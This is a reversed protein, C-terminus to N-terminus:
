ASSPMRSRTRDRPSPSTYLLCDYFIVKRSSRYRLVGVRGYIRRLGVVESERCRLTISIYEQAPGAGVAVLRFLFNRYTFARVAVSLIRGVPLSLFLRQFEIRVAALPFVSLCLCKCLLGIIVAGNDDRVRRRPLVISELKPFVFAPVFVYRSM